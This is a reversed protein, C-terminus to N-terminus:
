RQTCNQNTMLLDIQKQQAILILTLEEVKQLLVRNMEGLEIGGNQSVEAASPVGPLHKNAAIFTEWSRLDPTNYGSEFVYDPWNAQLAVKVETAIASGNVYLMYSGPTSPPNGVIVRGDVRADVGVHASANVALNGGVNANSAVTLVNGVTTNGNVGLNGGLTTNGGVNLTNGVSASGGIGTNGGINTNGSINAHSAAQLLGNVTANGGVTLDNSVGANGGLRTNGNVDLKATPSTTAIGVNTGDDWLQSDGLKSPATFKAIRNPTGMIDESTLLKEWAGTWNTANAFEKRHYIGGDNFFLQHDKDGGVNNTPALTLLGGRTANPASIEAGSKNEFYAEELYTGPGPDGANADMHLRGYFDGSTHTNGEVDLNFGPTMTGIGVLGSSTIVMRDLPGAAGTRFILNAPLVGPSVPGTAFSRLSVGTQINNLETLANFKIEGLMDGQVVPEAGDPGSNHKYLILEPKTGGAQALAHQQLALTLCFVLLLLFPATIKKM